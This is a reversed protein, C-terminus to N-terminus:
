GGPRRPLSEMQPWQWSAGDFRYVHMLDEGSYSPIAWSKAIKAALNSRLWQDVPDGAFSVVYLVHQSILERERPTAPRGELNLILDSRDLNGHYAMLYRIPYYNWWSSALVSMAEVGLRDAEIVAYAAAKPEIPGARFAYENRGGTDLFFDVFQVKYSGLLCWGALSAVSVLLWRHRSVASHEVLAAFVLIGPAVLFLGYREFHPHLIEPGAVIVAAVLAVVLGFAAALPPGGARRLPGAGFAVAALMAAGVAVDGALALAGYASGAVYRFSTTGSFLRVFHVAVDAPLTVQTLREPIKALVPGVLAPQIRYMAFGAAAAILILVGGYVTLTSWSRREGQRTHLWFPMAVIPSLFVATPHILCAVVLTAAAWFARGEVAFVVPFVCALVILCPVWGIRSYILNVPLAAMVIAAAIATPASMVRRFLLYTCPGLALGSVVAPFRLTALGPPFIAHGLLLLAYYFFSPNSTPTALSGGVGQTAEFYRVAFWAEDGNVGPLHDLRSLRLYCNAVAFLV